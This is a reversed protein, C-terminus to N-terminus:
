ESLQVGPNWDASESLQAGESMDRGREPGGDEETFHPLKALSESSRPGGPCNKYWEGGRQSKEETHIQEM